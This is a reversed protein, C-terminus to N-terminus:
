VLFESVIVILDKCIDIHIVIRNYLIFRMLDKSPENFCYNIPLKHGTKFGRKGDYIHSHSSYPHFAMTLYRFNWRLHRFVIYDNDSDRDSNAALNQFENIVSQFHPTQFM